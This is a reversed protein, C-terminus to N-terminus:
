LMCSSVPDGTLCFRREFICWGTASAFVCFSLFSSLSPYPVASLALNIDSQRQASVKFEWMVWLFVGATPVSQWSLVTGSHELFNLFSRCGYFTWGQCLLIINETICFTVSLSTFLLKLLGPKALVQSEPWVYANGRKSGFVSEVSEVAVKWLATVLM